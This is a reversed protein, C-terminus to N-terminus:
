HFIVFFDGLSPPKAGLDGKDEAAPPEAGLGGIGWQSNRAVGSSWVMRKISCKLCFFQSYWSKLDKKLSLVFM